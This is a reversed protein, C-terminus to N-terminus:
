RGADKPVAAALQVAVHAGAQAFLRIIREANRLYAPVLFPRPRTGRRGIARQLAYPNVGHRRAWGQLAAIPPWHPRTGREVYLGYRLSPGVRGVLRNPETRLSHTISNMLRRTDQRVNRRADREVLLLAATMAEAQTLRVVQPSRALAATLEEAGRLELRMAM